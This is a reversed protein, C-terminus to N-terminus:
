DKREWDSKMACSPGHAGAPPRLPPQEAKMGAVPLGPRQLQQGFKADEGVIVWILDNPRIYRRAAADLDAANMARYRDALTEYYDNPREFTANRAIAGLLQASEEFSCPLSRVQSRFITPDPLRTDTLKLLPHM